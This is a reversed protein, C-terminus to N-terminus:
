AYAHWASGLRQPLPTLKAHEHGNHQCPTTPPLCQKTVIFRALVSKAM